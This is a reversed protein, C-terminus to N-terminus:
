QPAQDPRHLDYEVHVHNNEFLVDYGAPMRTRMWQYLDKLDAPDNGLVDLDVALGRPHLSGAGHTLDQISFVVVPHPCTLGFISATALINALEPGLYGIRVTPQFQLM